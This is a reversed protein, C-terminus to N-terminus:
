KKKFIKNLMKKFDPLKIEPNYLYDGRVIAMGEEMSGQPPPANVYKIELKAKSYKDYEGMTLLNSKVIADIDQVMIISIVLNIICLSAIALMQFTQDVFITLSTLVILLAIISLLKNWKDQYKKWDVSNEKLYINVFEKDKSVMMSCSNNIEYFYQFINKLSYCLFPIAICTLFLKINELAVAKTFIFFTIFIIILAIRSKKENSQFNYKSNFLLLHESYKGGKNSLDLNENFVREIKSIVINVKYTTRFIIIIFCAFSCNSIIRLLSNLNTKQYGTFFFIIAFIIFFFLLRGFSLGSQYDSISPYKASYHRM